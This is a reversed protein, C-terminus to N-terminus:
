WKEEISNQLQSVVTFVTEKEQEKNQYVFLVSYSGTQLQKPEGSSLM